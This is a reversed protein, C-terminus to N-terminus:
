CFAEASLWWFRPAGQREPPMLWAVPACAQTSAAAMTFPRTTALGIAAMDAEVIRPRHSM